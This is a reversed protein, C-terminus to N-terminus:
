GRRDWGMVPYEDSSRALGDSITLIAVKKRARRPQPIKASGMLKEQETISGDLLAGARKIGITVQGIFLNRGDLEIERSRGDRSKSM